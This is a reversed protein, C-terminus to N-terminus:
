GYDATRLTIPNVALAPSARSYAAVPVCQFLLPNGKRRAPGVLLGGAGGAYAHLHPVGREFDSVLAQVCPIKGVRHKPPHQTEQPSVMSTVFFVERKKKRHSSHLNLVRSGGLSHVTVNAVGRGLCTRAMM